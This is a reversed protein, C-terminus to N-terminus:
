TNIVRSIGDKLVPQGFNIVLGLPLNTAKLYAVVQRKFERSPTDVAKLEIVLQKEILLDIRGEGIVRDRYRLQVPYECQFAIGLHELEVQLARSYTLEAFGPGLERHVAIAAGIVKDALDNLADPVTGYGGLFIETDRHRRARRSEGELLVWWCM